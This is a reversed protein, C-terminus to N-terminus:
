KLGFKKKIREYVQQVALEVVDSSSKTYCEALCEKVVAEYRVNRYLQSHTGEGTTIFEYCPACFDGVFGGEYNHNKCDKVICKVIMM